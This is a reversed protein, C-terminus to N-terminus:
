AQIASLLPPPPPPARVWRKDGSSGQFGNYFLGYHTQGSPPDVYALEPYGAVMREM